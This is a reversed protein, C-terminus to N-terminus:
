PNAAAEAAAAEAAAAEAAARAEAEAALKEDLKQKLVQFVPELVGALAADSAAEAFLERIRLQVSVTGPAFERTVPSYLRFAASLTADSAPDPASVVLSQLWYRDYVTEAKAPQVVVDATTFQTWEAM